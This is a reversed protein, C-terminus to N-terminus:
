NTKPQTTEVVSDSATAMQAKDTPTQDASHLSLAMTTGTIALLFGLSIPDIFGRISQKM